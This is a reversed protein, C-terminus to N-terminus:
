AIFCFFFSHLFYFLTFFTKLKFHTICCVHSQARTHTHLAATRFLLLFLYCCCCCDNAAVGVAVDVDVDNTTEASWLFFLLHCRQQQQQCFFQWLSFSAHGFMFKNTQRQRSQESVWEREREWVRKRARKNLKVQNILRSSVCVCVCMCM